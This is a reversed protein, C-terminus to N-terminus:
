IQKSDFKRNWLKEDTFTDSLYFYAPKFWFLKYKSMKLDLEFGKKYADAVVEFCYKTDDKDSFGYDYPLGLSELVNHANAKAEEKTCFNPEVYVARDKQTLFTVLDTAIVGHKTAEIVYAVDDQIDYTHIFKNLRDRYKMLKVREACMALKSLKDCVTGIEHLIGTYLNFGYYFGAHNLESPNLLNSGVGSVNTLFVGGTNIKSRWLYYHSGTVKKIIYPLTFYKDIFRVVPSIFLLIRNIHGKKKM